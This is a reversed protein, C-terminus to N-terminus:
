ASLTTLFSWPGRRGREEDLRLSVAREAYTLLIKLQYSARTAAKDIMTNADMIESALGLLSSRRESWMSGGADLTEQKRFAAVAGEGIMRTRTRIANRLALLAEATDHAQAVMAYLLADWTKLLKVNEVEVTMHVLESSLGISSGQVLGLDGLEKIAREIGHMAVEMEADGDASHKTTATILERTTTTAMLAVQKAKSVAELEIKDVLPIVPKEHPNPTLKDREMKLKLQKVYWNVIRLTMGAPELHFALIAESMTSLTTAGTPYGLYAASIAIYKKYEPDKPSGGPDTSIPVEIELREGSKTRITVSPVVLAEGSLGDGGPAEYDEIVGDIDLPSSPATRFRVFDPEATEYEMAKADMWMRNGVIRIQKGLDGKTVVPHAFPELQRGLEGANDDIIFFIPKGFLKDLLLDVWSGLINTCCKYARSNPVKKLKSVFGFTYAAVVVAPFILMIPLFIQLIPPPPGQQLVMTSLLALFITTHCVLSLVDDDDKIFPQYSCYIAFTAFSILISFLLQETSGKPLLKPLCVLMVKRLTEFVEFAYTRYEFGDTLRHVTSSMQADLGAMSDRLDKLRISAEKIAQKAKDGLAPVPPVTPGPPPPAKPPTKAQMM